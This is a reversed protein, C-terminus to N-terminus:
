LVVRKVGERLTAVNFNILLGIKCGTLRLYSLIQATYVPALADVAKLEVVVTNGILLDLTGSGIKRGKYDLSVAVQRAYPIGREELEICLAEEYISELLGPGLFRHVEIAAGIIAHTLAKREGTVGGEKVVGSASELM